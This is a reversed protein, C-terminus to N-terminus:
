SSVFNCLNRGVLASAALVFSAFIGGDLDFLALKTIGNLDRDVLVLAPLITMPITAVHFKEM